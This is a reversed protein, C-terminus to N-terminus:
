PASSDRLEQAKKSLRVLRKRNRAIYRTVAKHLIRFDAIREPQTVDFYEVLRDLDNWFANCPPAIRPVFRKPNVRRERYMRGVRIWYDTIYDVRPRTDGGQVYYDVISAYRAAGLAGWLDKAVREVDRLDALLATEMDSRAWDESKRNTWITYLFPVSIGLSGLFFFAGAILPWFQQLLHAIASISM